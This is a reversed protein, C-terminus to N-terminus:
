VAFVRGTAEDLGFRYRMCVRPYREDTILASFSRKIGKAALRDNAGAALEQVGQVDRSYVDLQLTIVSYRDKGSLVM